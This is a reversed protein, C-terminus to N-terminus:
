TCYVCKHTSTMYSIARGIDYCYSFIRFSNEVKMYGSSRYLDESFRTVLRLRSGSRDLYFHCGEPINRWTTQFYCVSTEAIGVEEDCCEDGCHHLCYTGRFRRYLKVLSCPSTDWFAITKMSAMM